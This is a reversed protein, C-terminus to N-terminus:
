VYESKNVDFLEYILFFAQRYHLIKVVSLSIQIKDIFRLEPYAVTM